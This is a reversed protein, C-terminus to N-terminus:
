AAARDAAHVKGAFEGGLVAGHRPCRWLNRATVYALPTGCLPGPRAHANAAAPADAPRPCKPTSAQMDALTPM